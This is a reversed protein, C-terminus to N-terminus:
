SPTVEQDHLDDDTPEAPTAFPPDPEAAAPAEANKTTTWACPYGGTPEAELLGYVEANERLANLAGRFTDHQSAIFPSEPDGAVVLFPKHTESM